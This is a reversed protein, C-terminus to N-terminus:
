HDVTPELLYPPAPQSDYPYDLVISASGGNFKASWALVGTPAPATQQTTM